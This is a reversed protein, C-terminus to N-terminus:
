VESEAAKLEVAALAGEAKAVADRLLQLGEGESQQRFERIRRNLPALQRNLFALNEPHIAPEGAADQLGEISVEDGSEVRRWRGGERGFQRQISGLLELRDRRADAARLASRSIEEEADALAITAGQLELGACTLDSQIQLDRCGEVLRERPSEGKGYRVFEPRRNAEQSLQRGEQVVSRISNREEFSYREGFEALAALAADHRSQEAADAAADAELQQRLRDRESIHEALETERASLQQETQQKLIRQLSAKVAATVKM